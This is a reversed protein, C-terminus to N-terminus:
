LPMSSNLNSMFSSGFNKDYSKWENPHCLTPLLHAQLLLSILGKNILPLDLGCMLFTSDMPLNIEMGIIKLFHIAVLHRLNFSITSCTGANLLLTELSQVFKVNFTPILAEVVVIQEVVVFVKFNLNSTKLHLRHLHPILAELKLNM